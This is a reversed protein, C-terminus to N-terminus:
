MEGEELHAALARFNRSASSRSKYSILPEREAISRTVNKDYPVKALIQKKLIKKVTEDDAGYKSGRVKNLVVGTVDVKLSEATKIAKLSDILAPLEPNTVILVEDAAGVIESVNGWLGPPCDILVWDFQGKLPSIADRLNSANFNESDQMSIGAPVINLGSDHEYIAGSLEEDNNLVYHLNLPTPPIELHLGLNPTELNADIVLVKRGLNHLALGLNVATTTKGVGGKGSFVAMFKAEHKLKEKIEPEPVKRSFLFKWSRTLDIEKVKEAPAQVKELFRRKLKKVTAGISIKEIEGQEESKEKDKM